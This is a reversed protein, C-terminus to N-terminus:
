FHKVIIILLNMIIYTLISMTIILKKMEKLESVTRLRVNVLTEGVFLDTEIIEGIEFDGIADEAKVRWLFMDLGM